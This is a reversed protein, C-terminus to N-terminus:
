GADPVAPAAGSARAAPLRVVLALGGLASPETTLSGGLARAVDAMISMGLGSGGTARSRSPDFRVFREPASGYSGSPLGPGADEIRVAVPDGDRVALSVADHSGTHRDINALANAVLRELYDARGQVVAGPAVDIGVARDPHDRAFTRAAEAVLASVDILESAKEPAERVEALFLLDDILASMRASEQIIRQTARDRVEADLGTRALLEASGRIVTLPTRLEHSADGVFRQMTESARQETAITSRLTAVMDALAGALARVDRSPTATPPTPRELDGEAVATAFDTLAAFTHLDRGLILRAALVAIIVAGLAVLITRVVLAGSAATIAATSGAIVLFDGGGIPVARYVFGPLDASSRTVSQAARADALTPRARLPTAGQTVVTAQGSVSVVVLTLNLSDQQVLNVADSLASAPRHIGATAVTSIADDLTVLQAHRAQALTYGGVVLALLTTVAILLLTLRTFLRM